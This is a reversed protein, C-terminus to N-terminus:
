AIAPLFLVPVVQGSPLPTRRVDGIGHEVYRVVEAAIWAADAWPLRRLDEEADQAWAVRRKM